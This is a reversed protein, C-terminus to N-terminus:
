YQRLISGPSRSAAIGTAEDGTKIFGGHREREMRSKVYIRSSQFIWGDDDEVRGRRSGYPIALTEM